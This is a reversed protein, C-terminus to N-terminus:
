CSSYYTDSVRIRLIKLIQRPGCWFFLLQTAYRAYLEIHHFLEVLPKIWHREPRGQSNFTDDCCRWPKALAQFSEVTASVGYTPM